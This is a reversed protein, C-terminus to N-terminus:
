CRGYFFFVPPPLSGVVCPGKGEEEEEELGLAPLVYTCFLFGSFFRIWVREWGGDCLCSLDSQVLAFAAKGMRAANQATLDHLLM